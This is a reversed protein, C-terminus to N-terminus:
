HWLTHPAFTNEIAVFGALLGMPFLVFLCAISDNQGTQSDCFAWYMDIKHASVTMILHENEKVCRYM